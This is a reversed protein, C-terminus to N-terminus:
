LKIDNVSVTTIAAKRRARKVRGKVFERMKEDFLKRNEAVTGGLAGYSACFEDLTAKKQILTLKKSSELVDSFNM